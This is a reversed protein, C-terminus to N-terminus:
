VFDFPAFVRVYRRREVPTFFQGAAAPSGVARAVVMYTGPDSLALAALGTTPTSSCRTRRGPSRATPASM